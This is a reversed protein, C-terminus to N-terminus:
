HSALFNKYDYIIVYIHEGRIPQLTDVM